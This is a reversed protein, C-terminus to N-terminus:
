APWVTGLGRRQRARFRRKADGPLHSVARFPGPPVQRWLAALAAVRDPYARSWSRGGTAMWQWGMASSRLAFGNRRGIFGLLDPM